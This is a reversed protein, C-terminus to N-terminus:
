SRVENQDVVDPWASYENGTKLAVSGSLTALSVQKAADNSDTAPADDEDRTEVQYSYVTSERPKLSKRRLMCIVFSIVIIAVFCVSTIVVAVVFTTNSVLGGSSAASTVAQTVYVFLTAESTEPEDANDSVIVRLEVERNAHARLDANVHVSGTQRDIFFLASNDTAVMRYTLLGNRGPDADSARVQAIASDLSADAPVQVSNNRDTPFSIVPKHDNVDDINITVEVSSQLAFGVNSARVILSVSRRDQVSSADLPTAVRIEGSADDIRFHADWDSTLLSYTIENYPPQDLDSAIVHGVFTNRDAHESVHFTYSTQSFVPANDNVDIVDVRLSATASLASPSGSDSVIVYYTHRRYEEFNLSARTTVLGSLSDIQIVDDRYSGIPQLSYTLRANADIDGDSANIQAITVDSGTNEPLRVEIVDPSIVPTHDNADLVTVDIRQSSVQPSAGDDRCTMVIVYADRTERDFTGGTEIQFKDDPLAILRFYPSDISCDFRGNNGADPDTVVVHAVFEGAPLEELVQADDSTGLTNLTVRMRPANDNLDRVTLHVQTSNSLATAAQDTAIVRLSFEQFEEFDIVDATTILGSTPDINFVHGFLASTQRSFSYVIRGSDGDDADTARM